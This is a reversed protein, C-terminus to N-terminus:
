DAILTRTFIGFIPYKYCFYKRVFDIRVSESNIFFIVGEFIRMLVVCFSLFSEKM